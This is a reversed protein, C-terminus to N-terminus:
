YVLIFALFGTKCSHRLELQEYLLREFTEQVYKTLSEAQRNRGTKKAKQAGAPPPRPPGAELVEFGSMRHGGFNCVDISEDNGAEPCLKISVIVNDSTM